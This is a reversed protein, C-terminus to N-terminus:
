DKEKMGVPLGLVEQLIIAKRLEDTSGTGFLERRVKGGRGRVSEPRAQGVRGPAKATLASVRLAETASAAERVKRSPVSRGGSRDPEAHLGEPRAKLSEMSLAEFDPIEGSVQHERGGSSWSSEEVPEEAPEEGRMPEPKPPTGRALGLIEAWVDEPIIGESTTPEPTPVPQSPQSTDARDAAGGRAVAERDQASRRQPGPVPGPAGEREAKKKRGVGDLVSFVVVVLVFILEPPIGAM